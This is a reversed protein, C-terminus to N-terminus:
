FLPYISTWGDCGFPKEIIDVSVQIPLGHASNQRITSVEPRLFISGSDLIVDIYSMSSLLAPYRSKNLPKQQTSGDRLTM